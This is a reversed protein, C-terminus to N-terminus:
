PGLPWSTHLLTTFLGDVSVKSSMPMWAEGVSTVVFTVGKTVAPDRPCSLSASSAVVPLVTLPHGYKEASLTKEM